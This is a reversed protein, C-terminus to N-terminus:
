NSKQSKYIPSEFWNITYLIEFELRTHDIPYSTGTIDRVEYDRIGFVNNVYVDLVQLINQRTRVDPFEYKFAELINNLDEIM